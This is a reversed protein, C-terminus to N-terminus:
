YIMNMITEHSLYRSLSLTPSQEQAGKLRRLGGIQEGLIMAVMKIGTTRSGLGVHLWESPHPAPVLIYLALQDRLVTPCCRDLGTTALVPFCTLLEEGNM